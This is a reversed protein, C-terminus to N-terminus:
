QIRNSQQTKKPERHERHERHERAKFHLKKRKVIYIEEVDRSNKLLKPPDHEFRQGSLSWTRFALGSILDSGPNLNRTDVHWFNPFALLQLMGLRQATRLRRSKVTHPLVKSPVALLAIHGGLPQM